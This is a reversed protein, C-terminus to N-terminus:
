KMLPPMSSNNALADKMTAEMMEVSEFRLFNKKSSPLQEDSILYTDELVVNIEGLGSETNSREVLCKSENEIVPYDNDNLPYDAFTANLILKFQMYIPVLVLNCKRIGLIKASAWYWSYNYDHYVRRNNMIYDINEKKIVAISIIILALSSIITSGKIVINWILYDPTLSTESLYESFLKNIDVIFPFVAVVIIMFIELVQRENSKLFNALRKM